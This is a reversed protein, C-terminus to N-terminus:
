EPAQAESQKAKSEKAKAEARLERLRLKQGETLSAEMAADREKLLTKMQERLLELKEEYSQHIGILTDRQGDPVGLKGFFFPLRFEQKEEAVSAAAPSDTAEQAASFSCLGVALVM